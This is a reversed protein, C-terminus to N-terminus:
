FYIHLPSVFLFLNMGTLLSQPSNAICDVSPKGEYVIVRDALYTTMIFDHKVVFATKKIVKSVVICQESDLYSSPEDILYIDAPKGLCVTLAVKHLEGRSLNVLKKNMLKKILLPEMVDSIFQPDRYADRNRSYLISRVKCQFTCGLKQPKYSVSNQFKWM